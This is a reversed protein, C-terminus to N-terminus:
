KGGKERRWENLSKLQEDHRILHKGHEELEENISKHATESTNDLKDVRSVVSDVSDIFEIMKKLVKIFGVLVGGVSIFISILTLIDALEMAVDGKM